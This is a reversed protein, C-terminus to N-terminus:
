ESGPGGWQETLQQQRANDQKRKEFPARPLDRPDVAGGDAMDRDRDRWSTVARGTVPSEFTEFRPSLMPTALAGAPRERHVAIPKPVVRGDRFVYIM